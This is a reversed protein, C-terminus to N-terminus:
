SNDYELEKGYLAFFGNQLQHLYGCPIIHIGDIYFHWGEHTGSSRRVRCSTYDEEEMVEDWGVMLLRYELGYHDKNSLKFGCQVLVEETVIIPEFAEEMAYMLDTGIYPPQLRTVKTLQGDVKILNGIRLEQCNM